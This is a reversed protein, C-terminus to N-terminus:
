DKRIYAWYLNPLHGDKVVLPKVNEEVVQQVGEAWGIDHFVVLSNKNLKPFWDLVDKKVGNYSHDGDFFIFDINENFNRVIEYSWGRKPKIINRYPEINNLFIDFTDRKGETMGDNNWTDICYLKSQSNDKIAHAILCSSAGLYSGIEVYVNGKVEKALLFLKEKEQETLHTFINIDVM